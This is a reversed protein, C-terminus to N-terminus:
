FMMWENEKKQKREKWLPQDPKRRIGANRCVWVEVVEVVVGEEEGEEGRKEGDTVMGVGVGWRSVM